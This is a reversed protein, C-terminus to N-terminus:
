ASGAYTGFPHHSHLRCLRVRCRHIVQLFLFGVFLSDIGQYLWSATLGLILMIYVAVDGWTKAWTYKEM